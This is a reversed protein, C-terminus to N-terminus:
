SLQCSHPERRRKRGDAHGTEGEGEAEARILRALMDVDRSNVKIVAMAEGGGFFECNCYIPLYM